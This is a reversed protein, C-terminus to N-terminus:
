SLDHLPNRQRRGHGGNQLRITRQLSYVECEMCCFIRQHVARHNHESPWVHLLFAGGCYHCHGRFSHYLPHSPKHQINM